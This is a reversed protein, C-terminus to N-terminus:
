MSVKTLERYLNVLKEEQAAWSLDYLKEVEIKPLEDMVEFKKITSYMDQIDLSSCEGLLYKDVITVIDPFDSALMPIEAFAYEFLKNPLCYYDSLSINQIFCLGIDASKAVSIVEEHPVADHIHINSYQNSTKLLNNKLEGYGLFVIHSNLDKNKFIEILSEIGRGRIFGGIYIFIRSSIPIHYTKRLYDTNISTNNKKVFPSNMIIATDKTGIKDGYWKDISPSVVILKDVFRWVKKELFFISKSELKSLGNKQSELEHADYILKSKRLLKIFVGVPLVLIDHCHIIQPKLKLALIFLKIYFEILIFIHKITNPLITWKRSKIELSHITISDFTSSNRDENREMGVGQVYYKNNSKSISQMEKLIRSDCKIDTHTLHLVNM